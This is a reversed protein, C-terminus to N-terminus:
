DKKLTRNRQEIAVAMGGDRGAVYASRRACASDLIAGQAVAAPPEDKVTGLVASRQNPRSRRAM